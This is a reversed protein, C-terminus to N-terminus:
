SYQERTVNPRNSTRTRDLTRLTTPVSNTPVSNTPAALAFSVAAVLVAGAIWWADAQGLRLAVGSATAATFLLGLMITSRGRDNIRDRNV